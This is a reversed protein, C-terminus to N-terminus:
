KAGKLSLAASIPARFYYVTVGVGAVLLWPWAQRWLNGAAGGIAKGVENGIDSIIASPTHLLTTGFDAATDLLSPESLTDASLKLDRWLQPWDNAADQYLAKATRGPFYANESKILENYAAEVKARETDIRQYWTAQDDSGKTARYWNAIYRTSLALRDRLTQADENADIGLISEVGLNESDGTM